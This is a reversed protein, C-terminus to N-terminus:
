TYVPPFTCGMEGAMTDFLVTIPRNRTVEEYDELNRIPHVVQRRYADYNPAFKNLIGVNWYYGTYVILVPDDTRIPRQAL